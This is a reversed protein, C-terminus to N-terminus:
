LLDPNVNINIVPYAGDSSFHERDHEDPQDPQDYLDVLSEIVDLADILRVTPVSETNTLTCRQRLWHRATRIEFPDIDDDDYGAAIDPDLEPEGADDVLEAPENREYPVEARRQPETHITAEAVQQAITMVREGQADTLDTFELTIKM